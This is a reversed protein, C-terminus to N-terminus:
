YPYKGEYSRWNFWAYNEANSVRDYIANRFNDEDVDSHGRLTHGVHFGYSSVYHALEHTVLGIIRRPIGLTSRYGGCIHVRKTLVVTGDQATATPNPDNKAYETVYAASAGPGSEELPSRNRLFLGNDVPGRTEDCTRITQLMSDFHNRIRNYSGQPNIYDRLHYCEDLLALNYANRDSGPGTPTVLGTPTVFPAVNDIRNLALFMAARITPVAKLVDEVVTQDQWFPTQGVDLGIALIPTRRRNIAALTPGNPDIRSDVYPAAKRQFTAIARETLPGSLGDVALKPVPGGDAPEIDNLAEQIKLVDPRRNQGRLGVSATITVPGKDPPPPGPQDQTPRERCDGFSDRVIIPM